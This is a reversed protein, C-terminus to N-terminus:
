KHFLIYSVIHKMTLYACNKVWSTEGYSSCRCPFVPSSFTPSTCFLSPQKWLGTRCPNFWWGSCNSVLLTGQSSNLIFVPHTQVTNQFIQGRQYFYIEPLINVFRSKQMKEHILFASFDNVSFNTEQSWYYGIISNYEQSRMNKLWFRIFVSKNGVKM